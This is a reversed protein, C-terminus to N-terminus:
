PVSPVPITPIVFTDDPLPGGSAARTPLAGEAASDFLTIAATYPGAEPTPRKLQYRDVLWMGPAWSPTPFMKEGPQDLVQYVLEGSASLLNVRVLLDRDLRADGNRWFLTVELFNNEPDAWFRTTYGELWVLDP